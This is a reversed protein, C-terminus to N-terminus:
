KQFAPVALRECHEKIDPPWDKLFSRFKKQDRAYLARIAEEYDPLDGAISTMFKYTCEQAQQIRVKDTVDAAPKRAEDILKRLTASAGSPQALLWEWHRPLLSVERAVVGLKPRGPGTSATPPPALYIQLLQRTEKESRSLDFDVQKGTLDSFILVMDKASDKQKQFVKRAALVVFELDGHALIRQGQFATYTQSESKKM